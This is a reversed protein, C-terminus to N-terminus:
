WRSGFTLKVGSPFHTTNRELMNPGVYTKATSTALALGHGVIGACALANTAILYRPIEMRRTRAVKGVERRSPPWDASEDLRIVPYSYGALRCVLIVTNGSLVAGAEGHWDRGAGFRSGM